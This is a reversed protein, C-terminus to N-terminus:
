AVCVSRSACCPQQPYSAVWHEVAGSLFGHTGPAGSYLQQAHPGAGGGEEAKLSLHSGRGDQTLHLSVEVMVNLDRLPTTTLFKPRPM